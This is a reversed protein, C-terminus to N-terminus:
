QLFLVINWYAFLFTMQAGKVQFTETLMKTYATKINTRAHIHKICFYRIVCVTKTVEKENLM